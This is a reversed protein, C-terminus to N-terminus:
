HAVISTQFAVDSSSLRMQLVSCRMRETTVCKGPLMKEKKAYSNKQKGVRKQKSELKELCEPKRKQMIGQMPKQTNSIKTQLM